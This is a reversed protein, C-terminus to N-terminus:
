PSRRSLPGDQQQHAARDRRRRRRELVVAEVGPDWVTGFAAPSVDRKVLERLVEVGDSASGGGQNDAGDSIVVPAGPGALARDVSADISTPQHILGEGSGSM